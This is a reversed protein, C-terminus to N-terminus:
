DRLETFIRGILDALGDVLRHRWDAVCYAVESSILGFVCNGDRDHASRGGGCCASSRRRWRRRDAVAPSRWSFLRMCAGIFYTSFPIATVALPRQCTNLVTLLILCFGENVGRQDSLGSCFDHSFVLGCSPQGRSVSESHGTQVRSALCSMRSPLFSTLTRSLSFTPSILAVIRSRMPLIRITLSQGTCPWKSSTIAMSAAKKLCRSSDNGPRSMRACLSSFSCLWPEEVTSCPRPDTSVTSRVLRQLMIHSGQKMSAFWTPKTCSSLQSSMLCIRSLAIVM